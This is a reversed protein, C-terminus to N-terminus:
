GIIFLFDLYKNYKTLYIMIQAINPYWKCSDIM